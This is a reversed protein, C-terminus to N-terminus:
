GPHQLLLTLYLSYSGLLVLGQWRGLRKSLLLMPYLLLTVGVMWWYDSELLRANVPLPAILSTLGLIGCINFLNSGVVNGLAIDTRGRLTSVFSAAVEPLSTGTSVITLGITRESWGIMRALDVAGIVTAQAGAALVAIGAGCLVLCLWLRPRDKGPVLEAVEAALEGAEKDTVQSRVLHVSYSTFGVYVALCLIGDLRGIKGHQSIVVALLTVLILVPYELKVTNGSIVLPRAVACLGAIVCVNFINSGVVNGMALDPSGQFAAVGSVALEPISTGAAVVTLGIVAPTLRSLVALGVAGRILLEGGVYLLLLGLGIWGIAILVASM